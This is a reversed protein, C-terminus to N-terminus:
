INFISKGNYCDPSILGQRHGDPTFIKLTGVEIEKNNFRIEHSCLNKIVAQKINDSWSYTELSHKSTNPFYRFDLSNEEEKIDCNIYLISDQFTGVHIEPNIIGVYDGLHYALKDGCAINSVELYICDEYKKAIQILREEEAHIYEQIEKQGIAQLEKIEQLLTDDSYDITNYDFDTYKSLNESEKCEKDKELSLKASASIIRDIISNSRDARHSLMIKYELSSNKYPHTLMYKLKCIYITNRTEYTLQNSEFAYNVLRSTRSIFANRGIKKHNDATGSLSYKDDYVSIQWNMMNVIAKSM